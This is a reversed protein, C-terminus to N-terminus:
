TRDLQYSPIYKTEFYITSAVFGDGSQPRNADETDTEAMPQVLLPEQDDRRPTHKNLADSVKDESDSASRVLIDIAVIRTKPNALRGAGPNLEAKGRFPRVRLHTEAIARPANPKRDSVVLVRGAVIETVAVLRAKIALAVLGYGVGRPSRDQNAAYSAVPV